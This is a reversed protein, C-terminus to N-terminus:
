WYNKLHKLFFYKSVYIADFRILYSKYKPHSLIFYEASKNIRKQQRPSIFDMNKINNRAKIEIFIIQKNKKAILDIEGFPTKFRHQLIKYLCLRLYWASFKEAIIGFYYSISKKNNM